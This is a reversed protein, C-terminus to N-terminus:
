DAQGSEIRDLVSGPDPQLDVVIRDVHHPRSGGYFRNRELVVRQGRVYESVYYPGAGPIAGVGEPDAPLTPPVACFFPMTTRAAFDPVPRTFRVVLRRGSAVVGSATASKGAQVAAAGVIDRTYQTAASWKVEPALTRNM